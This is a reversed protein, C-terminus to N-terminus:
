NLFLTIFIMINHMKFIGRLGGKEFPSSLKKVIEALIDNIGGKSVKKL